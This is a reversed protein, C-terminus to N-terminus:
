SARGPEVAGVVELIQGGILELQREPELRVAHSEQEIADILGHERILLVTTRL